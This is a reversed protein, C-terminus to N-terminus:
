NSLPREGNLLTNIFEEVEKGSRTHGFEVEGQSLPELDADNVVFCFNRGDGDDQQIHAGLLPFKRRKM